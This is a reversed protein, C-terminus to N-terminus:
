SADGLAERALKIEQECQDPKFGSDYEHSPPVKSVEDPDDCNAHVSGADDYYIVQQGDLLPKGCGECNSHYEGAEVATITNLLSRVRNSAIAAKMSNRGHKEVASLLECRAGFLMAVLNRYYADAREQQDAM